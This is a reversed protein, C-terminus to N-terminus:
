CCQIGTPMLILIPDRPIISIFPGHSPFLHHDCHKGLLLSNSVVTGYFGCILFLLDRHVNLHTHPRKSHHKYLSWSEILILNHGCHNGLLLSYFCNNWLLWVNPVNFGQPYELLISDRPVIIYPGHGGLYSITVMITGKSCHILFM